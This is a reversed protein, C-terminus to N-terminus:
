RCHGSTGNCQGAAFQAHRDQPRAPSEQCRRPLPSLTDAISARLDDLMKELERIKRWDTFGRSRRLSAIQKDLERAIADTNDTVLEMRLQRALAPDKGCDELLLAALRQAGLKASAEATVAIKATRKKAISPKAKAAPAKALTLHPTKTKKPMKRVRRREAVAEGM